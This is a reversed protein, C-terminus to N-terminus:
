AAPVAQTTVSCSGGVDDHQRYRWVNSLARALREAREAAIQPVIWDVDLTADAIEGNYRGDALRSSVCRPQPDRELLPRGCGSGVRYALV